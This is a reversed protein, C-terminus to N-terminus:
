DNNYLKITILKNHDGSKQISLYRNNDSHTINRQTNNIMENQLQSKLIEIATITRSYEDLPIRYDDKNEINIVIDKNTNISIIM